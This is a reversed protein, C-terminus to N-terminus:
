MALIIKAAEDVPTNQAALEEIKKFHGSRLVKDGCHSLVKIAYADLMANSMNRVGRYEFGHVNRLYLELIATDIKRECCAASVMGVLTGLEIAKTKRGTVTTFVAENIRNKQINDVIKGAVGKLQEYTKM